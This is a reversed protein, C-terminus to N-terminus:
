AALLEPAEQFDVAAEVEDKSIHFYRAARDASRDEAVYLNTIARTPVPRSALVPEGFRVCPDLYIKRNHRAFLRAVRGGALTVRNSLDACVGLLAQEEQVKLTSRIGLFDISEKGHVLVRETTFPYSGILRALSNAMERVGALSLGARLLERCFLLEVLEYFHLYDQEDVGPHRAYDVERTFGSVWERLIKPDVGLLAGTAPYSYAGLEGTHGSITETIALTAGM